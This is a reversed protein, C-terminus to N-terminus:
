GVMQVIRVGFDIGNGIEGEEITYSEFHGYLCQMSTTVGKNCRFNAPYRGATPILYKEIVFGAFGIVKYLLNNGNAITGNFIPILIKEGVLTALSQGNCGPPVSVGPDSPILYYGGNTLGGIYMSCGPGAPGWGFGGSSTDPCDYATSGGNVYLFTSGTPMVLSNTDTGAVGGLKTFECVGIMLPMASAGSPPGWAAVASSRVSQGVNAADLVPALLFRVKDPNAANAPNNTRNKVRVYGKAAAPVSPPQACPTLSQGPAVGCVETVTHQGDKANADSFTEALSTACLDVCSRGVALAAADAGNQLQRREYYLAGVDVVIAGFAVITTVIVAFWALYAGRERSRPELRTTM